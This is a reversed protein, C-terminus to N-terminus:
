AVAKARKGGIAPQQACQLKLWKTHRTERPSQCSLESQGSNYANGGGRTMYLSLTHRQLAPQLLLMSRPYHIATGANSLVHSALLKFAAPFCRCTLGRYVLALGLRGVSSPWGVWFVAESHGDKERVLVGVACCSNPTRSVKEGPHM